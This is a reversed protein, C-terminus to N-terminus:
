NVASDFLVMSRELEEEIEDLLVKLDERGISLAEFVSLKPTAILGQLGMSTIDGRSCFFNAVEVIQVLTQEEGTCHTSDHHHRITQLVCEPLQWRRGVAAGLQTHDFGHVEREVECLSRGPALQGAVERFSEHLYQDFLVIGLDHLVGCLFAEEFREQGCRLAIKRATIAVSLMHRWLGMRRYSGSNEKSKFLEAVSVAAALSRVHNFGLYLIADHVTAVRRDLGNAASNVTQLLRATLSPDSEVISKLDGITSEPHSVIEIVRIAVAPFSSIERVRAVATELANM